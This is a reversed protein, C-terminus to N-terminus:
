FSAITVAEQIKTIFSQLVTGLSGDFSGDIIWFKNINNSRYEFYYYNTNWTPFLGVNGSSREILEPPVGNRFLLENQTYDSQDLHTAFNGNYFGTADPFNDNVDETLGQADIRFIEVCSESGTCGPSIFRGFTISKVYDTTDTAEDKKECGFLLM